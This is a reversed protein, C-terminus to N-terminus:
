ENLIEEIRGLQDLSYKFKCFSQIIRTKADAKAKEEEEYGM